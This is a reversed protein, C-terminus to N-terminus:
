RYGGTVKELQDGAPGSAKRPNHEDRTDARLGMFLTDAPTASTFAGDAGPTAPDSHGMNQRNNSGDLGRREDEKLAMQFFLGFKKMATELTLYMPQFRAEATGVLPGFPVFGIHRYVRQQRVIGSIIALDYGQQQSYHALQEMLGYLVRGYRYKKDVALLRLECISRRGAPLYADLNELKHDLSFPRKDRVAMMGALDEGDLGILYINEVDFQDVLVGTPNPHHQSIEQVFTKYNLGYIQEFESPETAIKFQLTNM